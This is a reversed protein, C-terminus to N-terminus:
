KWASPAPLEPRRTPLVHREHDYFCEPGLQEILARERAKGAETEADGPLPYPEVLVIGDGLDRRHEPPLAQLREGFMRVFPPGFFNRWYLGALGESYDRVTLVQSSGIKSPVLRRTKGHIDEDLAVYAYPSGLMKMLQQVQDEHASRWAPKSASKERTNWSISGTYPYQADVKSPGIFIFDRDTLAGVMLHSWQEYYGLMADM